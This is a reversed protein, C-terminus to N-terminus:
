RIHSAIEKGMEPDLYILNYLEEHGAIEKALGADRDMAAVFGQPDLAIIKDALPNHILGMAARPYRCLRRCTYHDYQAIKDLHRHKALLQAPGSRSCIAAVLSPDVEVLKDLWEYSALQYALWYNKKVKAPSATLCQPSVTQRLQAGDQAIAGSITVSSFGVALLVAAFLSEMRAKVM